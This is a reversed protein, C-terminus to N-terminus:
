KTRQILRDRLNIALLWDCIENSERIKGTNLQELMRSSSMDHRREFDRIKQETKLIVEKSPPAHMREECRKITREKEAPTMKDFDSLYLPQKEKKM